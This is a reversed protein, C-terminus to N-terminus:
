MYRRFGIAGIALMLLAMLMLGYQNLTPIGEFFVTNYITCSNGEGLSIPLNACDSDDGEAASDLKLETVACYSSGGYDPYLGTIVESDTEGQFNLSGEVSTLVLSDSAERVNNCEYDAIALLDIGEDATVGEWEKTVTVTVPDLENYILCSFSAGAPIDEYVCSVASNVDGNFYDPTYGDPVVETIECKTAGAVYSALTFTVQHGESITFEQQLPLGSNCTIAVDVTAPNDDSFDKVVTFRGAGEVFPISLSDTVSVDDTNDPSSGFATANNVLFGSGAVPSGGDTIEGATVNHTATCTTNEGPALTTSACSADDEDNDDDIRVGTLTVDGTNVVFYSYDVVGASIVETTTSSKVMSIAPGTVFPISLSDTADPAEASSATVNNLLEGSDAVPSGNNDVDGQTVTKTATCTFSAGPALSTGPCSMASTINDDVLMIATLTTDGANTVLYSYSVDMPAGISSTPSSKVVTLLLGQPLPVSESDTVPETQVSDATAMNDRSGNDIDAQTVSYSGTCIESAGPALSAIPNNGSPCTIPSVLPDTVSIITLTVNGTNSVTFTYSITDGVQATAGGNFTGVKDLALVARTPLMVTEDDTIPGAENSNATATNDVQGADIDAQTVTYSGTCTETVGVALSLIPNNGSPCTIVPVLPDTVAVSTLTSSGNNTVAFTYSITDGVQALAGGNYTGVKDILIDATAPLNVSDSDQDTVDDTGGPSSGTATATNDRQGADIDAQVITYTGTCQESAGPAMTPIPNGSPCTIPSVLPDTVSVSTLTLNGDNSVDFTYSITEGVEAINPTSGDDNWTGAKVIAVSATQGLPISLSDTDDPAETSSATVNNVLNGSDAVPSGNADLEGQTVTHQATCIFSGGPALSTGPCSVAADTNDDSLSIGTLTQNGTNTVLYGYSVAGPASILTTGSSKEVTMAPNQGLPVTEPATVPGTQDSDGTGINDRQGADIDAQVITYSGTCTESAGPALSLIPNNGSPCTIPSVLPDTVAVNTLTVNGTNSVAFTYSITDGVQAFAGGNFTGVKDITMLPTQTIPIDLNDTEDLTENSSATVVNSLMSSAPTPSGNADIEAQTVTHTASCDMTAGVAVTSAPCFVNGDINDDVLSVGTLEVNGLNTVVYDYTVAGPAMIAGTTSSKSVSMAPNIQVAVNNFTCTVDALGPNNVDYTLTVEVGNTIPSTSAGPCDISELTYGLATPDQETITIVASGGATVLAYLIGQNGGDTLFFPDTPNLGQNAPDQPPSNSTWNFVFDTSGDDDPASKIVTVRGLSETALTTEICASQSKSISPNVRHDNIDCDLGVTTDWTVATNFQVLGNADPICDITVNDIVTNPFSVNGGIDGCSDGNNEEDTVEIPNGIDLGSLSCVAPGGNAATERVDGGDIAVWYRPDYRIANTNNIFSTEVDFALGSGIVCFTPTNVAEVTGGDDAATCNLGGQGTTYEAACDGIEGASVPM